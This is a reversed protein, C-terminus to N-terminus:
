TPWRLTRMRATRARPSRSRSAISVAYASLYGVRPDALYTRPKRVEPRRFVVISNRGRQGAPTSVTCSRHKRFDRTGASQAFHLAGHRERFPFAEVHDDTGRSGRQGPQLEDDNGQGGVHAAAAVMLDVRKCRRGDNM